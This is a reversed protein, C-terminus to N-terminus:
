VLQMIACVKGVEKDSWYAIMSPEFLKTYKLFEFVTKLYQSFDPADYLM